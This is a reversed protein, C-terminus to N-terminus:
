GEKWGWCLQNPPVNSWVTRRDVREFHRETLERATKRYQYTMFAGGTRLVRYAAAVITEGLGEPLTSIPLGSLVYDAHDYGAARVIKEVDAASGHVARLRADAITADLHDIFDANLDIAILVANAPLRDLIHTTFTGVGPGFEVFVRCSAWDIRTLMADVTSRSSPFVAGVMQPHEIAGRLFVGFPGLLKWLGKALGPKAPRALQNGTM